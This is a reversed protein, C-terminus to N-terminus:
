CYVCTGFHKAYVCDADFEPTKPLPNFLNKDLIYVDDKNEFYMHTVLNPGTADFVSLEKRNKAEEIVKMWFPNNKNSAMLANQIYEHNVHPSESISVKNPPLENYFNKVCMYDMDAYIGGYKYLIFYRAIDIRKINVDYGIYIDYYWPFDNKILNELDEDTWMIYEYEPSPFHQLWTTQCEIWVDNWRSKDAPATQHIIKPIYNNDINSNDIYSYYHEKKLLIKNISYFLITTILLIIFYYILEM